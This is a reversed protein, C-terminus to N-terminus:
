KGKIYNMDDAATQGAPDEEPIREASMLASLRFVKDKEMERPEVELTM